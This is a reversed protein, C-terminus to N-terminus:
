TLWQHLPDPIFCISTTWSYGAEIGRDAYFQSVDQVDRVLWGGFVKARYLYGSNPQQIEEWEIALTPKVKEKRIFFVYIATPIAAIIVLLRWPATLYTILTATHM